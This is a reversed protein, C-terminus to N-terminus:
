QFPWLLVQPVHSSQPVGVRMLHFFVLSGVAPGDRSCVGGRGTTRGSESESTSVSSTGQQTQAQIAGSLQLVVSVKHKNLSHLTALAAVPCM